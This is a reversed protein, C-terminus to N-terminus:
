ERQGGAFLQSGLSKGALLQDIADNIVLRARLFSAAGTATAFAM